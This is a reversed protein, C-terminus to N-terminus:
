IAFSTGCGCSSVANPNDIIFRSGVIAEEFDICAGSLFERSIPDILVDSRGDTIVEDDPERDEVLRIDYQFGSCGGGLVAVRLMLAKEPAASARIELLRFFARESVKVPLKM